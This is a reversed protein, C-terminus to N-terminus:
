CSKYNKRQSINGHSTSSSSSGSGGLGPSSSLRGGLTTTATTPGLKSVTSDIM